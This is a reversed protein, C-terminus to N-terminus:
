ESEVARLHRFEPIPNVPHNDIHKDIRHNLAKIDDRLEAKTTIVSDHVMDLKTSISGIDKATAEKNDAHQRTSEHRLTRQGFMLKILAGFMVGAAGIVSIVIDANNSAAIM